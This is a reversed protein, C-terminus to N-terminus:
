FVTEEPAEQIKVEEVPPAAELIETVELSEMHANTAKREPAIKGEQKAARSKTCLTAVFLVIQVLIHCAILGIHALSSYYRGTYSWEDTIYLSM